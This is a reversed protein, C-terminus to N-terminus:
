RFVNLGVTITVIFPYAIFKKAADSGYYKM